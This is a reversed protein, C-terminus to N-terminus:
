ECSKLKHKIVIKKIRQCRSTDKLDTARLSTAHLYMHTMLPQAISLYKLRDVEDLFAFALDALMLVYSM